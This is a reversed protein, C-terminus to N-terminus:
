SGLEGCTVMRGVLQRWRGGQWVRDGTARVLGDASLVLCRWGVTHVLPVVGAPRHRKGM